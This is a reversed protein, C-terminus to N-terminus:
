RYSTKFGRIQHYCGCERRWEIVALAGGGGAFVGPGFKVGAFFSSAFNGVRQVAAGWDARTLNRPAMNAAKLFLMLHDCHLWAEYDRNYEKIPPLKAAVLIKSCLQAQPSLPKGAALEGSRTSTVARVRDWQARDFDPTSGDWSIFGFDGGFYKPKWSQGAAARTYGAAAVSFTTLMVHSVGDRRHQLVAPAGAAQQDTIDCGSVFESWSKVGASKLHSKLGNSGDFVSRDCNDTLLGLKKFGKKPDFFGQEKAGLVWNKLMVNSDASNSIQYPAARALEVQGGPYATFYPTKHEVTLCARTAPFVYTFSDILAFVKDTETYELCKNRQDTPNILDVTKKVPVVRRGHVGGHRNAWAVYADIVEPIDERTNIVGFGANRLGGVDMMVFGVKVETATVGRDSARLPELAGPKVPGGGAAVKKGGPGAVVTVGGASSGAAPKGDKTVAGGSAVTGDSTLLTGDVTTGSALDGVSSASPVAAWGLLSGIVAVAAAVLLREAKPAQTLWSKFEATADV